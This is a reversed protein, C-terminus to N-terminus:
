RKPHIKKSFLLIDRIQDYFASIERNIASSSVKLKKILNEVSQVIKDANRILIIARIIDACIDRPIPIGEFLVVDNLPSIDARGESNASAIFVFIRFSIDGRKRSIIDFAVHLTILYKINFEKLMGEAIPISCSTVIGSRGFPSSDEDIPFHKSNITIRFEKTFEEVIDGAINNIRAVEELFKAYNESFEKIAKSIKDIM